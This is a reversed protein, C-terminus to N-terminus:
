RKYNWTEGAINYTYTGAKKGNQNYFPRFGYPFSDSELQVGAGITVKTLRNNSFANKGIFTVSGPITVSTLQNNSFARKGISIVSDPITVDTLKHKFFAGEEISTVGDPITVSTLQNPAPDSAKQQSGQHTVPTKQAGKNFGLAVKMDLGHCRSEANGGYLLIPRFYVKDGLPIDAGVGLTAWVTSYGSPNIPIVRYGYDYYYYNVEEMAEAALALKIDIGVLPFISIGGLDFLFKGFLEIEFTTLSVLYGDRMYSDRRYFDTGLSLMAYIADFYAFFGGGRLNPDYSFDATFTGGIGASIKKEVPEKKASDKGPKQLNLSATYQSQLKGNADVANFLLRSESGIVELSGTILYEVGLLQGISQASEVSVTGDANFNIESRIKQLQGQDPKVPVVSRNRLINGNLKDIVDNAIDESSATFSIVAVKTNVPLDRSIKVAAALLAEDLSQAGIFVSCIFGFFLLFLSKKM